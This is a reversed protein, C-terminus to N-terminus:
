DYRRLSSSWKSLVFNNVPENTVRVTSRLMPDSIKAKKLAEGPMIGLGLLGAVCVAIVAGLGPGGGAPCTSTSKRFYMTSVVRLYYAAAIAANLVGAVSLVLFWANQGGTADVMAVQIAGAFLALKGWFGALPPIGALSFMCVALAGAIWPRTHSLGALESLEDVERKGDSLYALAAFTGLSAAAYVVLYFVMAAVGSSAPLAMAVALGILMYGAHAIASYAMLRRMNQQWLACTNGLTMTAIALVLILRWGVDSEPPLTGAVLRVLALIGAIKPAVALLGANTNTLGQYVDPAYFHFPVATIKFGLGAVVMVLGVVYLGARGGPMGGPAAAASALAERIGNVSGTGAIITTGGAAGYLFSMGYLLLASALLSLFFYKITAEGTTRDRRGLFLILYTPISILELAVFLFVLDNARSVLMLGAVLVMVSAILESSLQHRERRTIMLTLLIGVLLCLMRAIQSFYDVILPGSFQVDGTQLVSWSLGENRVLVWAAVAYTIVSLLSWFRQGSAATGAVYIWAAIIVLIVEPWVLSITNLDVCM